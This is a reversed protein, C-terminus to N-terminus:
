SASINLSKVASQVISKVSRKELGVDNLITKLILEFAFGGRSRNIAHEDSHFSLSTKIELKRLVFAIKKAWDHFCAHNQKRGIKKFKPDNLISRISRRLLGPENALKTYSLKYEAISTARIFLHQRSKVSLKRFNKSSYEPKKKILQDYLLLERRIQTFTYSKSILDLDDKLQSTYLCIIKRAALPIKKDVRRQIARWASQSISVSPAAIVLSDNGGIKAKARPM